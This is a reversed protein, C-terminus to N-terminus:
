ASTKLEEALRKRGRAKVREALKKVNTLDYDRYEGREVAEFGHRIERRASELQEDREKLLRL